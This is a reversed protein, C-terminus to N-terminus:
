VHIDAAEDATGVRLTQNRLSPKRALAVAVPTVVHSELARKLPRAGYRRDYGIEALRTRARDTVDITIGRRQLGDRKSISALQLDVIRRVADKSLHDFPVLQDVRGLFEPRFHDRIARLFDAATRKGEFGVVDADQVGLNSTMIIFTMRFDVFRGLVDTLRGEGLVGLLLDFAEPHAKEIEDFLVVSLPEKRVSEALSRIGRGAALLRRAAGPASLESMDVRVLRSDDGFLYRTIQKALETKGVGTPGAFLLSGLPRDPAHIGAKFPAIARAAQTCPQNQGIVASQLEGAIEAVSATQSDSILAVPLGTQRSFSREVDSAHIVRPSGDDSRLYDIFRFAKGPFRRDRRYSALLDLARRIATPEMTKNSGKLVRAAYDHLVPLLSGADPEDLRLITFLELFSANQRRARALDAPTCETLISISGNHIAPALLDAISAGDAQPRLMPSLRDLYLYDGEGDLEEILTLIREQWMGVYIMGALLRQASTAWLRPPNKKARRYGLFIRALHRIEATKGVGPGGVLLVSPRPRRMFLALDRVLRPAGVPREIRGKATREVWEDAVVALTPPTQDDESRTSKSRAIDPSWEHVYEEGERRFDYLLAAQRGTLAGAVANSLVAKASDLEELTIFWDFRPLMVQYAGSELETWAYSLRLPLVRKGVVPRDKVVSLPHVDVAITRTNFHETWLYRELDETREVLREQLIAELQALVGEETADYAAPLPSDFFTSFRRMLFGTRRGDAHVVFYVRLSPKM